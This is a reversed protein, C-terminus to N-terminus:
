LDRPAHLTRRRSTYPGVANVLEDFVSPSMRFYQKFRVSDLRLEQVSRGYEGLTERERITSHLWVKRKYRKHSKQCHKIYLYSLLLLEEQSDDAMIVVVITPRNKNSYEDITAADAAGRATLGAVRRACHSGVRITQALPPTYGKLDSM